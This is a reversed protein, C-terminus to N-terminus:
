CKSKNKQPKVQEETHPVNFTLLILWNNNHKSKILKIHKM